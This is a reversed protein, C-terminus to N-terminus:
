GIRTDNLIAWVYSPGRVMSSGTPILTNIQGPQVNRNNGMINYTVEFDGSNLSQNIEHNDRTIWITNGEVRYTFPLGTKTNFTHGALSSIQQWIINFNSTM